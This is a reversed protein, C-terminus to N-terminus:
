DNIISGLYHYTEALNFLAGTCDKSLEIAKKYYQIAEDIRNSERLLNGLDNCISANQPQISLIKRYIEEARKVDGSIHCEHAKKILDGIDM